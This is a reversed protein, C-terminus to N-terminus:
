EVIYIDTYGLAEAIATLAERIASDGCGDIDKDLKIGASDIAAGIAASEKHYGYGTARGSGSTSFEPNRTHIWISAYVPGGGDANYSRWCRADIITQWRQYDTKTDDKIVVCYRTILDKEGNYNKARIVSKQQNITAKM